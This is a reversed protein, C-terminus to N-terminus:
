DVTVVRLINTHAAPEHKNTPSVVGATVVVLDDEKVINKAKLLEISSYILVDTSEARKAHFPKVGWYLQMQRVASASPSLGIVLSEPRWKSLMRTTFGTISPAVIAKANLDHATGVSSSCVANSINHVNAASVRRKRYASYDLHKETEEVISAMMSLAEVPYKGMATEGSLMVADTGDYVANAVDTVEARTPRPNRIMSDLMQTATIVPKCAVNCKEIIMKQIYPVEQAPIEVGMDGRAVMIGDSAEIIADLNEIGEANEIKAIVAM